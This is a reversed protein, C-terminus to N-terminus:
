ADSPVPRPSGPSPGANPPPGPLSTICRRPRAGLRTSTCRSARRPGILVAARRGAPHRGRLGKGRLRPHLPTTRRCSSSSGSLLAGRGEACRRAFDTACPDRTPRSHLPSARLVRLSRRPASLPAATACPPMVASGCLENPCHISLIAAGTRAVRGPSRDEAGQLVEEAGGRSVWPARLSPGVAQCRGVEGAAPLRAQHM